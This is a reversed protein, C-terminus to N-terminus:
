VCASAGASESALVAEALLEDVEEDTVTTEGDYHSFDAEAKMDITQHYKLVRQSVYDPLYTGNLLEGFVIVDRDDNAAEVLNKVLEVTAM